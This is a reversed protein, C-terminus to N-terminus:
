KVFVFTHVYEDDKYIETKVFSLSKDEKKNSKLKQTDSFDVHKLFQTTYKTKVWSNFESDTIFKIRDQSYFSGTYKTCFAKADTNDNNYGYLLSYGYNSENPNWTSTKKQSFNFKEPTGNLYTSIYSNDDGAPLNTKGGIM